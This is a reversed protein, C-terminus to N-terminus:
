VFVLLFFFLLVILLSQLDGLYFVKGSIYVYLCGCYFLILVCTSLYFGLFEFVSQFYLKYTWLRDLIRLPLLGMCCCVCPFILCVLSGPKQSHSPSGGCLFHAALLLLHTPNTFMLLFLIVVHGIYNCICINWEKSFFFFLLLFM